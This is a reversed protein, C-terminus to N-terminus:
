SNSKSSEACAAFPVQHRSQAAASQAAASAFHPWAFAVCDSFKSQGNQLGSFNLDRSVPPLFAGLSRTSVQDRGPGVVGFAVPVRVSCRLSGAVLAFLQFQGSQPSRYM